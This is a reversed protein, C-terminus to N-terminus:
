IMGGARLVKIHKCGGEPKKHRNDYCNCTEGVNNMGVIYQENTKVKRLSYLKADEDHQVLRLVYETRDITVYFRCIGSRVKKRKKTPAIQNEM